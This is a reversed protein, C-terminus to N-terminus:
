KRKLNYLCYFQVDHHIPFHPVTFDTDLKIFFEENQNYHTTFTDERSEVALINDIQKNTYNIAINNLTTEM